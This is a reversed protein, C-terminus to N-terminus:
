GSWKMTEDADTLMKLYFRLADLCSVAIKMRVFDDARGCELIPGGRRTILGEVVRINKQVSKIVAPIDVTRPLPETMLEQVTSELAAVFLTCKRLRQPKVSANAALAALDNKTDAIAQMMEM